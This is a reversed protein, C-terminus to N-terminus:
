TPSLICLLLYPLHLTLLAIVFPLKTVLCHSPVVGIAGIMRYQVCCEEEM